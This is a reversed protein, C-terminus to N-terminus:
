EFIQPAPVLVKGVSRRPDVRIFFVILDHPSLSSEISGDRDARDTPAIKM